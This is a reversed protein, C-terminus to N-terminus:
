RVLVMKGTASSDDAVVRVFYVGSAASRGSADTGDWSACSWGSDCTTVPLRRILRGSVDYVSVKATQRGPTRFSVTTEGAFPNPRASRLRIEAVPEETEPNPILDYARVEIDDINWGCYNSTFDTGGMTWRLYVFPEQDALDSIDLEVYKWDSDAVEDENEWIITWNVSDVSAEVRAHDYRSVEVGLWRWFSLRTLSMQSCDLPGTTLHKESMNSSYDGDLNYGFVNDGTHAESPDPFGSSGGGGNPQGFEWAGERSWGPDEDLTWQYRLTPEGVTLTVNRSVDGLYQSDIDFVLSTVHLGQVLESASATLTLTVTAPVDSALTGETDGSLVLWEVEPDLRVEYSTPDAGHFSFTYSTDEPLFPGGAAGHFTAGEMPEVGFELDDTMAKICFNATENLDTLDSWEGDERYYSEGASASSEVLVRYRAGLLVDVNSTRDYPHGGRSLGLSVYFDEGAALVISEDLDFTHFGRHQITGSISELVATLETGDFDDCIRVEFEVSDAATYFSVARLVEDGEATFANFAETVDELTDRWGHYDHYYFNEYKLPEVDQFSVAGMQPHKAAYKDYYSVWFYGNGNWDDGWSNKIIWAGSGPAYSPKNDDWGVITVAHNPLYTSSPPQYHIGHDMFLNVDMHICTGVGGHEMVARKVDDINSLDEGASYWEVNRPYYIHYSTDFHAPITVYEQGDINRVMGEGRSTYAAAVLYDGGAHVELGGGSSPLDDANYYQNFGNWWDMHYEALDPEGEEGNEAWLGTFLLNSEMSAAVAHAWCTGGSQEKVSTVYDEGQHDRLDFEEPLQGSAGAALLAVAVAAIACTVTQANRMQDRM